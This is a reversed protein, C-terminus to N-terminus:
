LWNWCKESSICVSIWKIGVQRELQKGSEQTPTKGIGLKLTNHVIVTPGNKRQLSNQKKKKGNCLFM